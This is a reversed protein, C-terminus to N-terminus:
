MIVRLGALFWFRPSSFGYAEEYQRDLLNNARAQLQVQKIYGWDQIIDYSAALNMIFYGGNVVREQFPFDLTFRSDDRRGVYLSNLHLAVPGRSWGLDINVTNRPRRILHKGTAFFLNDLGGDDLVTFEFLHTYALGANLGWPLRARGALELGRTRVAGINEFTGGAFFGFEDFLSVFTIFDKFHNEFYTLGLKIRDEYLYQDAGVEWSTNKEPKLDPNGQFFPNQSSTEVFTPEKIARGGAARITTNTEPFRLAASARPSFEVRDFVSNDELRFGGTIFLRDWFSFQQQAYFATSRRSSKLYEFFPVFFFEGRSTSKLEETRAAVGLTSTSGLREKQGLHFNTHYDLSLRRELDRSFFFSGFDFDSELPNSPDNFREDRHVYALTLGHEWWPWPWYNTNLGMALTLDATNQEPDLGPGGSEKRDLRDGGLESPFGFRSEVLLTTFTFSLNDVPDYDLRSNLVNSAFRNNLELIGNDDIRSYAVSYGFRRHAGLLSARQESIFNGNESHAGMASNLTLTPKGTGKKTILSVMGTMADAGYLASMPGRVIELREVNDVTLANFNFFGGAKNLRIGNLLVQNHDSEGGRIYLATEGGRSGTQNIVAGPVTRLMEEVRVAQRQEIEQETIVTTSLTSEKEPVPTRTGTIVVDELVVADPAMVAEEGHVQAIGATFLIIIALGLWIQM